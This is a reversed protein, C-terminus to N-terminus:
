RYTQRARRDQEYAKRAQQTSPLSSVEAVPVDWWAESSPAAVTPDTEVVIVVPGTAARADDLASRLEAITAVRVATVGLSAANAALDVPLVDGDLRGTTENRYRSGTGFRQSGVSESLAGISAFGHNDVLVVVIKVREQVATVLEQSLMLYSGDGVMVFVDRDPAALKVGLGGAIEYGMCSFGYEVHYGKPDRTRWLKHLEGPLSGAAGVVVDRPGAASNVAGIVECQAPPQLGLRYARQVDDDWARARASVEARYPADVSWGHLRAALGELATRADGIVPLGTHKAADAAVVNVNVFAVGARSFVSRSATTFDSWRTGIGVVLDARRALANAAPTGTAGIAGVCQPHDFPLSGKGAQTEAVPVGTAEVLSRLASTAEAYIVGGGAVVLPREARRLADAAAALAAPDPASRPVPWVRTDFLSTPWDFAEAQVDEPLCVVAAGTEAPDALVRMAGLLADPLQEPRHVRDFFRSVPRFADNTSVDRSGVAELQQLVPDAPRTAFVDSPLLLVPLRNVTALAAGTVMNAAGPGVSTTCALTSLRNRMRAFGAAVHVMAQENRGQYYPLLTPDSLEAELLAQGIGAVNGHGFIGFCGEVLRHRVGDRETHQATLIRVAAQGVTLRVTSM